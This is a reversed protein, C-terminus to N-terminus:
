EGDEILEDIYKIYPDFANEVAELLNCEDAVEPESVYEGTENHQIVINIWNNNEFVLDYNCIKKLLTDDDVLAKRVESNDFFPEGEGKRKFAEIFRDGDYLAVNVDGCVDFWITHGRYEIGAIGNGGYWFDQLHNEGYFSHDFKAGISNARENLASIRDEYSANNTEEEQEDDLLPAMISIYEERSFGTKSCIFDIFNENDIDMCEFRKVENNIMLILKQIASMNSDSFPEIKKDKEKDKM